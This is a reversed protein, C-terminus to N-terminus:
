GGVQDAPGPVGAQSQAGSIREFLDDWNPNEAEILEVKWDRKYRKLRKERRIAAEANAHVEFWVLRSVAYDKTFGEVVHNRHEWVRRVLDSTVGIYLTGKYASALMYTYYQM